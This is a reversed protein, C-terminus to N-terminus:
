AAAVLSRISNLQKSRIRGLAMALMTILALSCRVDMKKLGRIYHAEFGFSEDLRSNVREVATRMKYLKKWKYSSRALPVFVRRDQQLPIRLSGAVPCECAGKCETGYHKAPCRYKLTGRDREFGGYAMERRKGTRPCHCYVTGKYDYVVNAQGDVLKTTDSDKWMNRIDIVAKVRDKDWLDVIWKGDDYGRDALLYECNAWVGPLGEKITKVITKGQNVESKEATTVKFGVPLEYKADVMLHLKYGYWSYEKQWETGDQRVGHYVKKGWRADTDRRGDPRECSQKTKKGNARSRIAKGDVALVQGFGPLEAAVQRVLEEFVRAIEDARGMLKRLFRSYVWAPPVARAGKYVDCGCIQRLQANRQLERRLSEITVHQFVIGALLSNWVARVPYDDRGNNREAELDKMLEEDPLAELVLRLRELDGIEDIENWQFLQPQPIIAM